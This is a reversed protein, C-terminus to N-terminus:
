SGPMLFSGLFKCEYYGWGVGPEWSACSYVTSCIAPLWQPQELLAAVVPFLNPPSLELSPSSSSLLVSLSTALVCPLPGSSLTSVYLPPAPLPYSPLHNPGGGGPWEPVKALPSPISYFPRPKLNQSQWKMKLLGKFM